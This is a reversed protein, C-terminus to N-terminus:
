PTPEEIRVQLFHTGVNTTPLLYRLGFPGFTVSDTESVDTRGDSEIRHQPGGLQAVMHVRAYAWCERVARAGELRM